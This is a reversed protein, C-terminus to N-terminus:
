LHTRIYDEYIAATEHGRQVPSSYKGKSVVILSPFHLRFDRLTLDFSDFIFIQSRPVKLKQAVKLASKLDSNPDVLAYLPVKLKTAAAQVEKLAEISVQIQPTWLFLIGSKESKFIKEIDSDRFFPIGSLSQGASSSSTKSAKVQAQSKCNSDFQLILSSKESFQILELDKKSKFHVQVWKGFQATPSQFKKEEPNETFKMKWEDLAQWEQLVSLAKAGCSFKSLELKQHLEPAALAQSLIFLIFLFNM